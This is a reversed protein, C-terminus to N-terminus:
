SVTNHDPQGQARHAQLSDKRHYGDRFSLPISGVGAWMKLGKPLAHPGWFVQPTTELPKYEM